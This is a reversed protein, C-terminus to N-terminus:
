HLEQRTLLLQWAVTQTSNRSGIVVSVERSLRAGGIPADLNDIDWQAALYSPPGSKIVQIGTPDVSKVTAFGPPNIVFVSNHGPESFLDFSSTIDSGMVLM